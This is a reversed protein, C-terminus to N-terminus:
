ISSYNFLCRMGANSVWVIRAYDIYVLLQHLLADGRELGLSDSCLKYLRTRRMPTFWPLRHYGLTHYDYTIM